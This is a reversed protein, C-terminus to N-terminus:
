VNGNVNKQITHVSYGFSLLCLVLWIGRVIYPLDISSMYKLGHISSEACFSRFEDHISNKLAPMKTPVKLV